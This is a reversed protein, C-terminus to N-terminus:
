AMGQKAQVLRIATKKNKRTLTSASCAADGRNLYVDSSGGAGCGKAVLGAQGPSAGAAKRGEFDELIDEWTHIDDM